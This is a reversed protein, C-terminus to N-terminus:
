VFLKTIKKNFHTSPTYIPIISSQLLSLRCLTKLLLVTYHGSLSYHDTLRPCMELWKKWNLWRRLSHTMYGIASHIRKYNYFYIYSEVNQVVEYHNAFSQYNLRETKLSRFFREMVANDWCNGKRSMSQTISNKSCYDIYTYRTEISIQRMSKIIAKTDSDMPKDRSQYYYSSRAHDFLDCLEQVNYQQCVEGLKTIM